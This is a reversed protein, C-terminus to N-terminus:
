KKFLSSWHECPMISAALSAKLFLRCFDFLSLAIIKLFDFISWYVSLGLANVLPLFYLAKSLKQQVLENKKTDVLHIELYVSQPFGHPIHSGLVFGLQNIRVCSNFITFYSKKTDHSLYSKANPFIHGDNAEKTKGMCLHFLIIKLTCDFCVELVECAFQVM